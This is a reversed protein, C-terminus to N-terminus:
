STRIVSQDATPSNAASPPAFDIAFSRQALTGISWRGWLGGVASRTQETWSICDSQEVRRAMQVLGGEHIDYGAWVGPYDKPSGVESFPVVRHHRRHRHTHGSTVFARPTAAALSWLLRDAQRKPVGPPWFWQIPLRHLHHHLCVLVPGPWSAACAQAEEITPEPITGFGQHRPLTDILLVRVSGHDHVRLPAHVQGRRALEEVAPLGHPRNDHNGPMVLVPMPAAELLRDLMAWDEARGKHTIDGKIILLEAGWAAAETVAAVACRLPYPVAQAPREPRRRVLGFGPEGLHIDSITAIRALRPGGPHALTRASLAVTRRGTVEIPYQTDAELGGITVAGPGSRAVTVEHNGVRVTRGAPPADHWMVQLSDIGVSFVSM